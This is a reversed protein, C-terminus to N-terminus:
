LSHKTSHLPEAMEREREAKEKEGESPPVPGFCPDDDWDQGMVDLVDSAVEKALKGASRAYQKISSVSKKRMAGVAQLARRARAASPCQARGEADQQTSRGPAGMVADVEATTSVM